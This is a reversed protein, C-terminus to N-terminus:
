EESEDKDKMLEILMVDFGEVCDRLHLLNMRLATLAEWVAKEDETDAKMLDPFYETYLNKASILIEALRYALIEENHKEYSNLAAIKKRVIDKVANEEAITKQLETNEIENM